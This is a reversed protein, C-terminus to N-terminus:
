SSHYTAAIKDHTIMLSLWHCSMAQDNSKIVIISQTYLMLLVGPQQPVANETHILVLSKAITRTVRLDNDTRQGMQCLFNQYRSHAELKSVTFSLLFVLHSELCM